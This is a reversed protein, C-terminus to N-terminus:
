SPTPSALSLRTPTLVSPCALFHPSTFGLLRKDSNLTVFSANNSGPVVILAKCKTGPCTPRRKYFPHFCQKYPDSTKNKIKRIKWSTSTHPVLLPFPKWPTIFRHFKLPPSAVWPFERLWRVIPEVPLQWSGPLTNLFLFIGPCMPLSRTVTWFRYTKFTHYNKM